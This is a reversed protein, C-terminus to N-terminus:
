RGPAGRKLWFALTKTVKNQLTSGAVTGAGKWPWSALPHLSLSLLLLLLYCLKDGDRSVGGIWTERGKLKLPRCAESPVVAPMHPPQLMLSHLRNILLPLCKRVRPGDSNREWEELWLQLAEGPTEGTQARARNWTWIARRGAWLTSSPFCSVAGWNLPM